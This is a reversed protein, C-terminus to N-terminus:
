ELKLRADYFQQLNTLLRALVNGCADGSLYIRMLRANIEFNLKDGTHLDVANVVFGGSRIRVPVGYLRFPDAADFMLALLAEIEEESRAESFVIEAPVGTPLLGRGSDIWGIRHRTEWDEIMKGYRNRVHAVIESHTRFSDGRATFKGTANVDDIAIRDDDGRVVRCMWLAMSQDTLPNQRFARWRESIDATSSLRLLFGNALIDESITEESISPRAMGARAMMQTRIGVEGTWHELQDTPLWALDMKATRMALSRISADSESSEAVSHLIWFRPALTDVFFEIRRAGVYLRHLTTDDTPTGALKVPSDLSSLFEWFSRFDDIERDLNVEVIYSKLTNRSEEFRLTSTFYSRGKLLHEDLTRELAKRDM